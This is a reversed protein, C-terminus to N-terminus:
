NNVSYYIESVVRKVCNKTNQISENLGFRSVLDYVRYTSETNNVGCIVAASPDIERVKNVVKDNQTMSDYKGEGTIVLDVESMMSPLNLVECILNVGSRLEVHKFCAYLGSATGGGCGGFSMTNLEDVGRVGRILKWAKKMVKNEYVPIDKPKLGKQQGFSFASGNAGLLPTSVDCALQLCVEDLIRQNPKITVSTLDLIDSGTLYSPPTKKWSFDLADLAYLVSLGADGTSSGGLGIVINKVGESFYLHSIMQGLGHSSTKYPNRKNPPVLELGSSIAM